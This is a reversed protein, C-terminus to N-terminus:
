RSALLGTQLRQQQGDTQARGLAQHLRAGPVSLRLLRHALQVARNWLGRRRRDDAAHLPHRPHLRRGAAKNKLWYSYATTVAVYAILVAGATASLAAGIGIGAVILMPGLLAFQLPLAGSAFPRHRKRPHKRDTLDTLDNILYSGSAALCFAIFMLGASWAAGGDTWAQATLLPVFVLVNKVWQYVRLAKAIAQLRNGREGLHAEVETVAAAKAKVAASGNAVIGSAAHKWVHVDCPADGVYVFGQEGFRDVLAAAKTEGRLNTIGDTALVEDFLSLHDAVRHALSTHSATVLVIHRGALKEEALYELLETNYPLLAPDIEAQEALCRKLSARCPLQRLSLLAQRPTQLAGRRLV